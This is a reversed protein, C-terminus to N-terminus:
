REHTYFQLHRLLKRFSTNMFFIYSRFILAISNQMIFPHSSVLITARVTNANPSFNVSNLFYFSSTSDILLRMYAFFTQVVWCQLGKKSTVIQKRSYINFQVFIIIM